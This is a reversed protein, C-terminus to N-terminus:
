ETRLELTSLADRVEKEAEATKQAYQVSVILIRTDWRVFWAETMGDVQKIAPHGAIRTRQQSSHPFANAWRDLADPRKDYYSRFVIWGWSPSFSVRQEALVTEGLENRHVWGQWATPVTVIFSAMFFTCYDGKYEVVAPRQPCRIIHVPWFCFVLVLTLLWVGAAIIFALRWRFAADTPQDTSM